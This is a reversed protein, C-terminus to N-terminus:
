MLNLFLNITMVELNLELCNRTTWQFLVFFAHQEDQSVLWWFDKLLCTTRQSYTTLPAHSKTASAFRWKCHMPRFLYKRTIDRSQRFLTRRRGTVAFAWRVAVPASTKEKLKKQDTSFAEKKSQNIMIIDLYWHCYLLFM